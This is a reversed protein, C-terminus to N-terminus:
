LCFRTSVMAKQSADALDAARWGTPYDSDPDTDPGADRDVATWGSHWAGDAL